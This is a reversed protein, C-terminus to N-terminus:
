GWALTFSHAVCITCSSADCHVRSPVNTVARCSQSCHVRRSGCGRWSCRQRSVPWPPLTFFSAALCSPAPATCSSGSCEDTTQAPNPTTHTDEETPAVESNHAWESETESAGDSRPRVSAEAVASTLDVRILASVFRLVGVGTAAEQTTPACSGNARARRMTRPGSSTRVRRLLQHMIRQMVHEAVRRLLPSSEERLAIALTRTLLNVYVCEPLAESASHQVAHLFIYMTRALLVEHTACDTIESQAHSAAMLALEVGRRTLFACPFSLMRELAYLAVSTIIENTDSSCCVHYFILLIDEESLVSTASSSTSQSSQPFCVGAEGLEFMAHESTKGPMACYSLMDDMAFDHPELSLPVSSLSLLPFMDCASSDDGVYSTAAATHAGHASPRTHADSSYNILRMQLQQAQRLLPHEQSPSLLVPARQVPKCFAWSLM